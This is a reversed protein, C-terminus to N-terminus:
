HTQPGIGATSTMHLLRPYAKFGCCRQGGLRLPYWTSRFIPVSQTFPKLSYFLANRYKPAISTFDWSSQPYRSELYDGKGKGKYVILVGTTLLLEQYQLTILYIPTHCQNIDIFHM